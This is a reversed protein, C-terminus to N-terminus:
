VRALGGGEQVEDGAAQREGNAWPRHDITSRGGDEKRRREDRIGKVVTFATALLFLLLAVANLLGGWLRAPQNLALDAGIRLALSAHLLALHGYLVPHFHVPVGLVAPFIIPAHGFIMSFVFGLFIAHLLADYHPGAAAGGYALGIAGALGLWVYGSLLCVAAYRPLGPVRVTRRAVDFRLLWAALALLGLGALRAGLEFAPISVLLGALFPGSALVFAAQGAPTLRALRGLELREGAITLILFAAWWLVAQHVPRGAAWLLNGALWAAAGGAMTATYFAPHRRVIAAFVALLGLSGLTIALRGAAGGVGLVLLLGGLGSLAPPLYAWRRGLAVARELAILTGLFGSVMLPGHVAPLGPQVAPVQWGLRVLGGWGAALM